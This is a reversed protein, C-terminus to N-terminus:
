KLMLFLHFQQPQKNCFLRNLFYILNGHKQHILQLFMFTEFPEVIKMLEVLSLWDNNDPLIWIFGSLRNLLPTGYTRSAM